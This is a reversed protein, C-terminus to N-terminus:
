GRSWAKERRFFVWAYNVYPAHAYTNYYKSSPSPRTELSPIVMWSQGLLLGIKPALGGNSNSAQHSYMCAHLLFLFSVLFYLIRRILFYPIYPHYSFFLSLIPIPYSDSCMISNLLFIYGSLDVKDKCFLMYIATFNIQHQKKMYVFFFQVLHASVLLASRQHSM